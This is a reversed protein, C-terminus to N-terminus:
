IFPTKFSFGPTNIVKEVRGFERILKFENKHTIVFSNGFIIVLAILLIMILRVKKWKMNGKINGQSDYHEYAMM